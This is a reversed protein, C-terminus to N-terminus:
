GLIAKKYFVCEGNKCLFFCPNVQAVIFFVGGVKWKFGPQKFFSQATKWGWCIGWVVVVAGKENSGQFKVAGGQFPIMGFLFTSKWGDNKLSSSNIKMAWKPISLIWVRKWQVEGGVIAQSTANSNQAAPRLQPGKLSFFSSPCIYPVYQQHSFDQM